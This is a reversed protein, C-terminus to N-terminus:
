CCVFRPGFGYRGARVMQRPRSSVGAVGYLSTLARQFLNTHERVQLLRLISPYAYRNEKECPGGTVCVSAMRKTGLRITQTITCRCFAARGAMRSSVM